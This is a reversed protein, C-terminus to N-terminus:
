VVLGYKYDYEVNGVRITFLLNCIKRILRRRANRYM